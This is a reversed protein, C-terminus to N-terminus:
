IKGQGGASQLGPGCLGQSRKGLFELWKQPSGCSGLAQGQHPSTVDDQAPMESPSNGLSRVILTDRAGTEKWGPFIDM